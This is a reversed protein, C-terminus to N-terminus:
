TITTTPGTLSTSQLQPLQLRSSRPTPTLRPLQLQPVLRTMVLWQLLHQFVQYIYLTSRRSNSSHAPDRDYTGVSVGGEVGLLDM